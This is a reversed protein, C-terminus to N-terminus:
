DRNLRAERDPFFLQRAARFLRFDDDFTAEKQFKKWLQNFLDEGEPWRVQMMAACEDLMQYVRARTVQLRKAQIRVSEVESPTALRGAVLAHVERGLDNEVQELLVDVLHKRVEEPTPLKGASNVEKFWKELPAVFEAKTVEKLSDSPNLDTLNSFVTFYVEMITRVRKEGHTKMARIEALTKGFYKSLPAEWIVSPVAVLAPAVRGIKVDGIPFKEIREQWEAWVVESVTNPDFKHKKRGNNSAQVPVPHDKTARSLLRLLTHIKKEGIGPTGSLEEFPTAILDGIPRDLLAMPLRREHPFAWYALPKELRDAFKKDALTKKLSQFSHVVRQEEALIERGKM